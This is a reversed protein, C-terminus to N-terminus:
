RGFRAQEPVQMLYSDQIRDERQELARLLNRYANRSSWADRAFQSVPQDDQITREFQSLLKSDILDRYKSLFEYGREFM